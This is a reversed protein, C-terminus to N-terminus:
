RRGSSTNNAYVKGIKSAKRGLKRKLNYVKNIDWGTERAIDSAKDIDEELCLLLLELEDDGSVSDRLQSLFANAAEREESSVLEEEPTLPINYTPSISQPSIESQSDATTENSQISNLRTTKKHEWSKFLHDIDSTVIWKLHLLLDPYKNPDWERQGLWIKKIADLAIDEPTKGKPLVNTDGTAWTYRRARWIAHRTLETIILDWDAAELLDLVEDSEM